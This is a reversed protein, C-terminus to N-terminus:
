VMAGECCEAIRLVMDELDIESTLARGIVPSGGANIQAATVQHLLVFIPRDSVDACGLEWWQWPGPNDITRPSILMIFARSSEITKRIGDRISPEHRSQNNTFIWVKVALRKLRMEIFEKLLFAQLWDASTFCLFIDLSHKGVDNMTM